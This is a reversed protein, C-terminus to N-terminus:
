HFVGNKTCHINKFSKHFKFCKLWLRTKLLTVPQFNQLNALFYRHRLTTKLLFHLKFFKELNMLFCRHQPRTKTLTVPQFFYCFECSFMQPPIENEIFNCVISVIDFDFQQYVQM